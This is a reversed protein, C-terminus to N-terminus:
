KKGLYAKQPTDGWLKELDYFLRMEQYFIHAIVDGFDLLVWLGDAYGERHYLTHGEGTLTDEVFDAVTKVRVSSSASMVVFTSCWASRQRMDMV